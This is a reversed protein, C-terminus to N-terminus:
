CLIRTFKAIIKEMRQGVNVKDYWKLLPREILLQRLLEIASCAIFVALVSVISFLIYQFLPLQSHSNLNITSQWLWQRMATSNDHILFVGFTTGGIINITKSYGININKFWLFTSFAIVVPLIKYSFDGGLVYGFINPCIYSVIVNAIGILIAFLSVVMWLRKNNFINHAYVRIYSAILYIVGFWTVYNFSVDYDPVSGLITYFLLMLAILSLHQLRTMNKILINWFPITLWFVLFRSAFDYNSIPSFVEILRKISVNDLGWFLFVVFLLIRYTLIQQCLKFFKKITIESKCMFYGTIMLFCNIGTKGWMGLIGLFASHLSDINVSSSCGRHVVYHHAVICLM